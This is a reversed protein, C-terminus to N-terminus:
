PVLGREGALYSRATSIQGDAATADENLARKLAALHWRSRGPDRTELLLAHVFPQDPTAAAEEELLSIAREREAPVVALYAGVIVRAAPDHGGLVLAALSRLRIEDLDHGEIALLAFGLDPRPSGPVDWDRLDQLLDRAEAYRHEGILVNALDFM